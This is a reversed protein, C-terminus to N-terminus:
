EVRVKEKFGRWVASSYALVAIIGGITVTLAVELSLRSPLADAVSLGGGRAPFAPLLYPYLTGAAEVLLSALFVFSAALTRGHRQATASRLLAALAGLSVLPMGFLWGALGGHVFFTAVTVAGYLGLVIWWVVRILRASREAPTGHVRLLIFAAGHQVLAAVGLAGVLLAYPNLL